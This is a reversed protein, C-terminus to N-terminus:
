ANVVFGACTSQSGIFVGPHIERVQPDEAARWARWLDRLLRKEAYRQARSHVHGASRHLTPDIKKVLVPAPLGNAVWSDITQQTTTAVQLGEAQAKEVEVRKRELFVQRYAGGKVQCEGIVFMEARRTPNYGHEIALDKMAATTGAVLRQREGRVIGLGMRKWLKAPNSYGSLDGACGVIVALRMASFGRVSAGWADWVPLLMALQEMGKEPQKRLDRLTTQMTLLPAISVALGSPVADTAGKAVLDRLKRAETKDGGCWRRCIALAQLEIRKEARMWDVRRRYLETLQDIIPNM